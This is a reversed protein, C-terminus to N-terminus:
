ARVAEREDGVADLVRIQLVDRRLGEGLDEFAL